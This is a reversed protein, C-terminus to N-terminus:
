VSDQIVQLQLLFRTSASTFAQTSFLYVHDFPEFARSTASLLWRSKLLSAHPAYKQHNLELVLLLPQQPSFRLLSLIMLAGTTLGVLFAQVSSLVHLAFQETLAVSSTTRRLLRLLLEVAYVQVFAYFPMLINLHHHLSSKIRTM